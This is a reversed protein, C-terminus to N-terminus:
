AASRSRFPRLGTDVYTDSLAALAPPTLMRRRVAPLAPPQTKVKAAQISNHQWYQVLSACAVLKPLGNASRSTMQIVGQLSMM